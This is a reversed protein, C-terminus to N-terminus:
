TSRIRNPKGKIKAHKSNWAYKFDNNEWARREREIFERHWKVCLTGNRYWVNVTKWNTLLILLIFGNLNLRIRNICHNQNSNTSEINPHYPFAINFFLSTAIPSSFFLFSTQFYNPSSLFFYEFLWIPSFLFYLAMPNKLIHHQANQM